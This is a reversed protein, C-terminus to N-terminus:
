SNGGVVTYHVRCVVQLTFEGTGTLGQYARRLDFWSRHTEGHNLIVVSINGPGSGLPLYPRLSVEGGRADHCSMVAVCDQVDMRVARDATSTLSWEVFIPEREFYTDRDLRATFRLPPPPPEPAPAAPVPVCVLFAVFLAALFPTKMRRRRPTDSSFV